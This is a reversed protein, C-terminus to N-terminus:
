PQSGLLADLRALLARVEPEDDCSLRHEVEAAVWPRAEKLLAVAEDREALVALMSARPLALYVDEEGSDQTCRYPGYPSHFLTVCGAPLSPTPDPM